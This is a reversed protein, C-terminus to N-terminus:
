RRRCRVNLSAFDQTYAPAISANRGVLGNRGAVGNEADPQSRMWEGHAVRSGDDFVPRVSWRYSGCLGEHEPVVHRADPLGKRSYVLRHNDYIELDYTITSKAVSEAAIESEGGEAHM